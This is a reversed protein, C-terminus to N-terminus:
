DYAGGGFFVDVGIGTSSELFARRAAQAPTDDAANDPLEIKPNDFAGAVEATWERGSRRWENEFAAYFEGKLFRAIESTGGPMRWDLRVTRGTKERYHASFARSFEYRIAENHPTIVVLTDDAKEFFGEEPKLAFPLGLVVAMAAFVLLARTM